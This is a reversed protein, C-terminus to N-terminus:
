YSATLKINYEHSNYTFHLYIIDTYDYSTMDFTNSYIISTNNPSIHFTKNTTINNTTYFKEDLSTKIFINNFLNYIHEDLIYLNKETKTVYDGDYYDMIQSSNSSQENKAKDILEKLTIHNVSNFQENAYYEEASIQVLQTHLLM